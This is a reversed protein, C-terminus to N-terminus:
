KAALATMLAAYRAEEVELGHQAENLLVYVEFEAVRPQPAGRDDQEVILDELAAVLLEQLQADSAKGDYNRTVRGLAAAREEIFTWQASTKSVGTVETLKTEMGAILERIDGLHKKLRGAYRKSDSNLKWTALFFRDHLQQYPSGHRLEIERLVGPLAYRALAGLLIVLLWLVHVAVILGNAVFPQTPGAIAVALFVPWGIVSLIVARKGFRATASLLLLAAAPGLLHGLVLFFGGNGGGATNGPNAATFAGLDSWAGFWVILAILTVGLMVWTTIARGLRAKRLVDRSLWMEGYTKDNTPDYATKTSAM